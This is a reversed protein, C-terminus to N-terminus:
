ASGRGFEVRIKDNHELVITYALGPKWGEPLLFFHDGSETLLRLGQYRYRYADDPGTPLAVEVVGPGQVFLREVSYVVVGPRNGLERAFREAAGRGVAAAYETAAWFVSLIVLLVVLVVTVTGSWRSQVRTGTRIERLRESLWGGYAGAVAGFGLCLPAAVNYKGFVRPAIVGLCGVVFLALGVLSLVRGITRLGDLRDRETLLRTVSRHGFLAVIGALLIVGLPVYLGEVSRLVYDQNTFGLVSAEVGFYQFLANTRIWGFYFLLATIITVPAVIAGVVQIVRDFTATPTSPPTASTVGGGDSRAQVTAQRPLSRDASGKAPKSQM